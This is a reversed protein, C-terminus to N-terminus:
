SMLLEDHFPRGFFPRGASVTTPLRGCAAGRGGSQREFNVDGGNRLILDEPSAPQADGEACRRLHFWRGSAHSCANSADAAPAPLSGPEANVRAEFRVCDITNRCTPPTGIPLRATVVHRRLSIM